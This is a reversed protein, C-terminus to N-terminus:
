EALLEQVKAELEDADYERSVHRVIGEKDILIDIPYPNLGEFNAAFADYTASSEELAVTFTVGLNECFDQVEGIDDVGDNPNLAVM